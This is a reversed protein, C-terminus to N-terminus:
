MYIYIVSTFPKKCFPCPSRERRLRQICKECMVHGCPPAQKKRWSYLCVPCHDKDASYESPLPSTPTESPVSSEQGNELALEDDSMANETYRGPLTTGYGTSESPVNQQPLSTPASVHPRRMETNSAPPIRQPGKGAILFRDYEMIRGRTERWATVFVWGNSIVSLSNAIVLLIFSASAPPEVVIQHIAITLLMPISLGFLHPWMSLNVLYIGDLNMSFSEHEESLRWSNSFFSTPNLIYIKVVVMATCWLVQIFLFNLAMGLLVLLYGIVLLPTLSKALILFMNELTACACKTSRILLPESDQDNCINPIRQPKWKTAADVFAQVSTMDPRKRYLYFFGRHTLAGSMLIFIVLPLCLFAIVLGFQVFNESDSTVLYLIAASYEVAAIPFFVSFEHFKPPIICLFVFMLLGLSGGLIIVVIEEVNLTSDVRATQLIYDSTFNNNSVDFYVDVEENFALHLSFNGIRCRLLDFSIGPQNCSSLLVTLPIQLPKTTTSNPFVSFSFTGSVLAKFRFQIAAGRMNCAPYQLFSIAGKSKVDTIFNSGMLRPLLTPQNCQLSGVGDIFSHCLAGDCFYKGPRCDGRGYPSSLHWKGDDRILPIRNLNAFDTNDEYNSYTSGENGAFVLYKSDLVAEASRQERASTITGICPLHAEDVYDIYTDGVWVSFIKQRFSILEPAAVASGVYEHCLLQLGVATALISLFRRM